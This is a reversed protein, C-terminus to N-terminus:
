LKRLDPNFSLMHDQYQPLQTRSIDARPISTTASAAVARKFESPSIGTVAKFQSSFHANSSYHLQQAVEQIIAGPQMLMEKAREIRFQIIYQEITSGNVESFINSLYTYNLNMKESIYVSMNLLPKEGTLIMKRILMKVKESLIEKNETTFEVGDKKLEAVVTALRAPKLSCSLITGGLDDLKDPGFGLDSFVRKVSDSKGEPIHKIFIIM